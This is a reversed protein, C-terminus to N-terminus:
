HSLALEDGLPILSKEGLGLTKRLFDALLICMERAKAPDSSTLASISNLCNFIFHPNVQTKLAKLESERALVRAESERKEAEHSAETSLLVYHLAVALLYLLVGSGMILPYSRAIQQDLGVFVTSFALALGRAVAVWIGGAVVAASLHTLALRSFSSTELPTGRCSYWASLCIFAYVACLPIALVVARTWGLGGLSALLYTLICALPIWAFLYLALRRLQGLIPHM